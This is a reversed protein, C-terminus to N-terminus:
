QFQYALRAITIAGFQKRGNLSSGRTRRSLERRSILKRRFRISFASVLEALIYSSWKLTSATQGRTQGRCSRMGTVEKTGTNMHGLWEGVWKLWLLSGQYPRNWQGRKYVHRWSYFWDQTLSVWSLGLIESPKYHMSQSCLKSSKREVLAQFPMWTYKWSCFSYLKTQSYNDNWSWQNLLVNHSASLVSCFQLKLQCSTFPEWRM